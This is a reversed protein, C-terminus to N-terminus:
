LRSNSRNKWVRVTLPWRITCMGNPAGWARRMDSYLSEVPNSKNKEKYIRVASWTNLYGILESFTWSATLEFDPCEIEDFPLEIDSYGNEVMSRELPWYSGLIDGYLYRILEDMDRNAMLLNYTWAAIIGNNRLVRSAEVSFADINFWHLAQAVTILDVSNSRLGSDEATAVSYTVGKKRVASLVQEESADTAMVLLFQDTLCSAAQGSGTACDWALEHTDCLSSLHLFLEKPYGPRFESYGQSCASFHDKFNM